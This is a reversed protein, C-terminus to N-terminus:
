GFDGVLPLLITAMWGHDAFVLTTMTVGRERLLAAISGWIDKFEFIYSLIDKFQQDEAEVEGTSPHCDNVVIAPECLAPPPTM